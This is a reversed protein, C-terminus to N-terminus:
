IDTQYWKAKTDSIKTQNHSSWFDTKKVTVTVLDGVAGSPMRSHRGKYTTVQVIKLVKAGTNDACFLEATVPLARTIYPRFESAGKASVARSKSAM